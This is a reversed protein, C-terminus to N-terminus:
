KEEEAKGVMVVAGNNILSTATAMMEEFDDYFVTILSSNIHDGAFIKCMDEYTTIKLWYM